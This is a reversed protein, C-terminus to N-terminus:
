KDPWQPTMRGSKKGILSIKIQRYCALREKLDNKGRDKTANQRCTKYIASHQLDKHCM